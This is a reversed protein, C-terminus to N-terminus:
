GTIIGQKKIIKTLNKINEDDPFFEIIQIM